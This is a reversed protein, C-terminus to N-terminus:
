QQDQQPGQNTRSSANGSLQDMEKESEAQAQAIMVADQPFERVYRVLLKEEDSLPRPSPFHDLRPGNAVIAQPPRASHRAPRKPVTPLAPRIPIGVDNTAIRTGPQKAGQGTTPPRHATIAPTSRGSRGMGPRGMGLKGMLSIAAVVLVAAALGLAPWRWWVRVAAHEREARLSALVREELGARPEVAAYKALAADLERDLRDNELPRNESVRRGADEQNYNQKHDQDAM